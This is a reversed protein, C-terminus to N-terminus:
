VSKLPTRTARAKTTQTTNQLDSNTTKAMANDTRTRNVSESYVNLMRLTNKCSFSICFLELVQNSFRLFLPVISIILMYVHGSVIVIRAQQKCKLLFFLCHQVQNIHGNRKLLIIKDLALTKLHLYYISGRIYSRQQSSRRTRMTFQFTLYYNLVYSRM